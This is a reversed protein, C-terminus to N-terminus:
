AAERQSRDAAAARFDDIAEVIADLADSASTDGSDFADTAAKIAALTFIALAAPTHHEHDTM